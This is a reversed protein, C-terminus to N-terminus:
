SHFPVLRDITVSDTKDELQLIFSKDNRELVSYPGNYRASLGSNKADIRVLVKDTKM